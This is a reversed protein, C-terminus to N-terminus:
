WKRSLNDRTTKRIRQLLRNLSYNENKHEQSKMLISHKTPKRKVNKNYNYKEYIDGVTHHVHSKWTLIPRDYQQTAKSAWTRTKKEM